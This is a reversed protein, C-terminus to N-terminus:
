ASKVVEVVHPPQPITVGGTGAVNEAPTGNAVLPLGTSAAAATGVDQGGVEGLTATSVGEGARTAAQSSAGSGQDAAAKGETTGHVISAPQISISVHTTTNPAAGAALSPVILHTAAPGVVKVAHQFDLAETHRVERRSHPRPIALYCTSTSTRYLTKLKSRETKRIAVAARTLVARCLRVYLAGRVGCSRHPRLRHGRDSALIAEDVRSPNPRRNQHCINYHLFIM